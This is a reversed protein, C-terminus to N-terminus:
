GNNKGEKVFEVDIENSNNVLDNILTEPKVENHIIEYLSDVLPMNINLSDTESKIVDLTRIGEAVQGVNEKANDLKFGNGLNQGLQFNRSLSSTCTAVLDGMGALGLFTIPDAGKAVAFRSM